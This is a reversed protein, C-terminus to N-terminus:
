MPGADKSEDREDFAGDPSPGPDLESSSSGTNKEVDEVDSLLEKSTAESNSGAVDREKKNEPGTSDQMM